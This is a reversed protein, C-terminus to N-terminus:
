MVHSLLLNWLYVVGMNPIDWGLNSVVPHWLFTVRIGRRVIQRSCMGALTLKDIALCKAWSQMRRDPFMQSILWKTLMKLSSNSVANSLQSGYMSKIYCITQFDSCSYPLKLLKLKTIEECIRNIQKSLFSIIELYVFAVLSQNQPLVECKFVFSLTNGSTNQWKPIQRYGMMLGDDNEKLTLLGGWVRSSNPSLRLRQSSSLLSLVFM